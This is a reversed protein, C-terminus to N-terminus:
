REAAVLIYDVSLVHPQAEGSKCYMMPTLVSTAINATLTAQLADDVYFKTIGNGDTYWTFTTFTDDVLTFADVESSFVDNEGQICDMTAKGDFKAFGIADDMTRTLGDAAFFATGTQVSSLGLFMEIETLTGAGSKDLKARCEFIAKKSNTQFPAQTLYLQGLDNDAGASTLVVSGTPGVITDTFNTQTFTWGADGQAVDYFVFDEFWVAWPTPDPFPFAELPHSSLVTSVGQSFRHLVNHLVETM